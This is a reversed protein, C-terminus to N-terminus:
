LALNCKQCLGSAKISSVKHRKVLVTVLAVLLVTLTAVGIVLVNASFQVAFEPIFQTSISSM